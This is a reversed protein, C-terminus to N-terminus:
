FNLIGMGSMQMLEMALRVNGSYEKLENNNFSIVGLCQAEEFNALDINLDGEFKDGSTKTVTGVLLKAPNEPDVNGEFLFTEITLKVTTYDLGEEGM